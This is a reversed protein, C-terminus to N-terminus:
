RHEAADRQSSRNFRDGARRAVDAAVPTLGRYASAASAAEFDRRRRFLGWAMLVGGLDSVNDRQGSPAENLTLRSLTESRAPTYLTSLIKVVTM